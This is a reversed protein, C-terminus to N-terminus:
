LDVILIVKEDGRMVDVYIRDGPVFEMMRNMYEYIDAVAKGNIAVIIDGKHMGARSGPKSKTVAAVRLGEIESNAFDPMIGLTAKLSTRHSQQVTKPGAEKFALNEPMQSFDMVMEAVISSLFKIGEFNLFEIDDEPTHYDSHVIGFFSLVSIDKGYFSAHDTPGYGDPSENLSYTSDKDAFSKQVLESLGEATGTGYATLAKKVSDIRGIMDLNFMFKIDKIPVPPNEVFYNSGLLGMEEAGFAVFIVSRKLNNRNASLYEMAEIIAAVGSANDDAGNHVATTDPKRSGSEPGGMGLHDHHAGIVIYEKSLEPDNGKLLAVVNQTQVKNIEVDTSSNVEIIIDFSNPKFEETMMKELDAVNTNKNALMKDATERTVSIVPIDVMTHVRSLKLEVLEDDSSYKSPAVFIVGVAGKDKAKLVKSRQSRYNEFGSKRKDYEPDGLFILAWKDKVDIGKYDLWKKGTEDVDLGYGAFVVKASISSNASYSLPVFDKMLVGRFNAFTLENKSGATAGKTVEFYQFGDDALMEMGILKLQHRIYEATYTDGKTGPERGMLSDSALYEIHEYLEDITIEPDINDNGLSVNTLFLSILIFVLYKM